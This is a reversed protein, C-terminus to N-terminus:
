KLLIPYFQIIGDAKKLLNLFTKKYMGVYIDVKKLVRAMETFWLKVDEVYDEYSNWHSYEHLNLYPPSTVILDVSENPLLKMGKVCDLPYINNLELQEITCSM